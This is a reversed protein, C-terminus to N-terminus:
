EGQYILVMSRAEGTAFKAYMAANEDDNGQLQLVITFLATLWASHTGVVVEREQRTGLWQLFGDARHAMEMMTERHVCSWLEDEEYAVLSCDVMSFTTRYETLTSRKDCFFVGMQERCGEHALIPVGRSLMDDKFAHLITETARRMPSVIYLEPQITGVYQKLIDADQRGIPTLPPDHLAPLLYPSNNALATELDDAGSFMAGLERAVNAVLNHYGEGHRIFHVLKAKPNSKWNHENDWRHAHVNLISQFTLKIEGAQSRHDSM